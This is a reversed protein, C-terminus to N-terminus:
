YHCGKRSQCLYISIGVVRLIRALQKGLFILIGTVRVEKAKVIGNKLRGNLPDVNNYVTPISRKDFITKSTDTTHLGNLM